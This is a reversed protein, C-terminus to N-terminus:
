VPKAVVILRKLNTGLPTCTILTLRNDGSDGLVSIQDPQIVFSQEVIYRYKKMKHYILIEDGVVVNHLVAFVDKFRGPDWPFYSSHGTLVFNGSQNPDPTGPYHVVGYQLAKQIDSELGQWDRLRLKEEPVEIVPVNKGLRPLIIRNGPPIIEAQLDPIKLTPSSVIVPNLQDSALSELPNQSELNLFERVRFEWVSYFADFNLIVLTVGFILAAKLITALHNKFGPKQNIKQLFSSNAGNSEPKKPKPKQKTQSSPKDRLNLTYINPKAAAKKPKKKLKKFLNAPDTKKARPKKPSADAPKKKLHKHFESNSDFISSM